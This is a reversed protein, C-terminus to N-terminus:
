VSDDGIIEEINFDDERQVSDGKREVFLATGYVTVQLIRNKGSPIVQTHIRIGSVMNAGMSRAKAVLNNLAVTVTRQIESNLTGSRGGWKDKINVFFEKWFAIGSSEVHTIVGIINKVKYDAPPEHTLLEVKM